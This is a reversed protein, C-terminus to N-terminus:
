TAISKELCITISLDHDLPIQLLKELRIYPFHHEDIWVHAGAMANDQWIKRFEPSASSWLKILDCLRYPHSSNEEVHLTTSDDHAHIERYMVEASPVDSRDIKKTDVGLGPEPRLIQLPYHISATLDWNRKYLLVRVKPHHHSQKDSGEEHMYSPVICANEGSSREESRAPM